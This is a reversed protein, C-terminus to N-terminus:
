GEFKSFDYCIYCNKDMYVFKYNKCERDTIYTHCRGGCGLGGSRGTKRKPFPYPVDRALYYVIGHRDGDRDYEHNPEEMLNVEVVNDAFNFFVAVERPNYHHHNYGGKGVHHPSHAPTDLETAGAHRAHADSFFAHRDESGIGEVEDERAESLHPSTDIDAAAFFNREGGHNAGVDAVATGVCYDYHEESDNAENHRM